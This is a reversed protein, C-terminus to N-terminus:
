STRVAVPESALLAAARQVDGDTAAMVLAQEAFAPEAEPPVVVLDVRKWGSTDVLSILAPDQTRFGGLRVIKQGTALKRPADGWFAISFSVRFVDYGALQLADVLAPLEATLERSHPWWGGDVFGHAVEKTRLRLRLRGPRHPDDPATSRASTSM